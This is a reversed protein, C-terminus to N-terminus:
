CAAAVVAHSLFILSYYCNCVCKVRECKAINKKAKFKRAVAFSLTHHPVIRSSMMRPRSLTKLFLKVTSHKSSSHQFSSIIISSSFFTWLIILFHFIFGGREILMCAIKSKKKRKEFHDSFQKVLMQRMRHGRKLPRQNAYKELFSAKM